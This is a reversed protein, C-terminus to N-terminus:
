GIIMPEDCDACVLNLEKTARCSCGCVPCIYKIVNSSKKKTNKETVDRYLTLTDKLFELATFVEEKVEEKLEVKSYGYKQYYAKDIDTEPKVWKMGHKEAMEAFKKNHRQGARACDQIGELYNSCHVMEHCLTNVIDGFDRKLYDSSINLECASKEGDHWVEKCVFWGYARIKAGECLTIVPRSLEGDYFRNNIWDFSKELATIIPTVTLNNTTNTNTNNTM